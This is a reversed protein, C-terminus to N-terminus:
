VLGLPVATNHADLPLLSPYLCVLGGPGRTERFRGLAAFTKIAEAQPAATKKIEIPYLHGDTAILLDIERGDKDRFYYFPAEQLRHWWSKLIEVFAYTEFLAGSMAGTELTQPSSWRTLYASLGTDLFYLKPTKTLRKTLNSHYPPLLYVQFSAVLVSLWNRATNVSIGCDRALDTYNLLQGTRAACAQVFRHFAELDGVQLLDRVDRELYTQVYSRYFLDRETIQGTALAPFSGWWMDQYVAALTTSGARPARAALREPTPLFPPLPLARDEKERRSFGLLNVIAVRGALTESIGQMLSFQQSGTLWFAGARRRRDVAIKISGLLQPAYQIEDILLPPAFRQLFLDPDQRALTRVALDDLTVYTRDTGCLHTLLTTKGVQRPGTLFLVPFQSSAALWRDQLTRDRYASSRRNKM